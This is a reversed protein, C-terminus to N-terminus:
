ESPLTANPIFIKDGEVGTRARNVNFSYLSDHLEYIQTISVTLPYAANKIRGRKKKSM